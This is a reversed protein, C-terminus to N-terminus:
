EVNGARPMCSKFVTGQIYNLINFSRLVNGALYSYLVTAYMSFFDYKIGILSICFRKCIKSGCVTRSFVLDINHNNMRKKWDWNKHVAGLM